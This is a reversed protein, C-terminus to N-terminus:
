AERAFVLHIVIDFWALSVLIMCLIAAIWLTDPGWVFMFPWNSGFLFLEPFCALVYGIAIVAMLLIASIAFALPRSRYRRRQGRFRALDWLVTVMLFAEISIALTAMSDILRTPDNDPFTLHQGLLIDAVDQAVATTSNSNLNAIVGVAM